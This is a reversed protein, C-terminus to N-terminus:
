IGLANVRFSKCRDEVTKAYGNVAKQTQGHVDAESLLQAHQVVILCMSLVDRDESANAINAARSALMFASGSANDGRLFVGPWDEGFQVAGTEIRKETDPLKQLSM